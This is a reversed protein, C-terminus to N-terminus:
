RAPTPAPEREPLLVQQRPELGAKRLRELVVASDSPAVRIALGCGGRIVEPKQVVRFSAAGGRLAREAKLTAHTSGFTMYLYHEM